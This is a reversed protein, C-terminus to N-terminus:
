GEPYGLEVWWGGETNDRGNTGNMVGEPMRSAGLHRESEERESVHSPQVPDTHAFDDALAGVRVALTALM